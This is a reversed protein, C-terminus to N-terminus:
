PVARKPQNGNAEPIRVADYNSQLLISSPLLLRFHGNINGNLEKLKSFYTPAYVDFPLDRLSIISQIYQFFVSAIGFQRAASRVNRSTARPVMDYILATHSILDSLLTQPSHLHYTTVYLQEHITEKHINFYWAITRTAYNVCHTINEQQDETIQPILKNLVDYWQHFTNIVFKSEITEVKETKPLIQFIHTVINIATTLVTIHTPEQPPIYVEPPHLAITYALLENKQVEDQPEQHAPQLETLHTQNVDQNNFFGEAEPDVTTKLYYQYEQEYTSTM